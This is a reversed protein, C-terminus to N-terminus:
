EHLVEAVYPDVGTAVQVGGIWYFMLAVVFAVVFFGVWIYNLAM